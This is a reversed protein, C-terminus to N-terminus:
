LFSIKPEKHLATRTQAALWGPGWLNRNKNSSWIRFKKTKMWAWIRPNTTLSMSEYGTVSELQVSFIITFCNSRQIRSGPHTCVWFGSGLDPDPIFLGSWLESLNFVIKQTFISLNKSASGPDPISFIWIRSFCGPDAVSNPVKIKLSFHVLDPIFCQQHQVGVSCM